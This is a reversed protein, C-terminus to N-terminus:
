DLWHQIVDASIDEGNLTTCWTSVIETEVVKSGGMKVYEVAARIARRKASHVSILGDHSGHVTYCFKSLAM